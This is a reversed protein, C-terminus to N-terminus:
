AKSFITYYYYILLYYITSAKIIFYLIWLINKCLKHINSFYPMPVLAIANLLIYKTERFFHRPGRLLIQGPGQLVVWWRQVLGRGDSTLSLTRVTLDKEPNM